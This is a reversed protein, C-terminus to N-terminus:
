WILAMRYAYPVWKRPVQSLSESRNNSLQQQVYTFLDDITIQGDHNTDAAGSLLGQVFHETFLSPQAQGSVNGKAWNYQTSDNSTVM